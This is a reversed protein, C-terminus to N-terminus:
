VNVSQSSDKDDRWQALYYQPEITDADKRRGLIRKVAMGPKSLLRAGRVLAAKLLKASSFRLGIEQLNSKQKRWFEKNRRQEVLAPVLSQYYSDLLRALRRKQEARNLYKPGFRCFDSLQALNIIGFKISRSTETNRHIRTYSLVQHVFGFDCHELSEYCATTDAHPSSHPFFTPKRRVMDARYLISTPSGFIYPGGRLISRCVESGAIVKREYELGVCTLAKGAQSHSGILGVSPNAEALEVMKALCEPFIFDDASVLKCYKAAPSMMGFAINHNDIVGVFQANSHVRIRSDKRAYAQAIELTRDASCNNVIIYELNKYTQALVSEICEALFEEGNYVPTLVTVLPQETM